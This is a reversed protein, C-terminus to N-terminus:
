PGILVCYASNRPVNGPGEFRSTANLYGELPSRSASGGLSSCTLRADFCPAYLNCDGGLVALTRSVSPLGAPSITRGGAKVSGSRNSTILFATTACCDCRKWACPLFLIAPLLVVASPKPTPLPIELTGRTPPPPGSEPVAAKAGPVTPPRMAKGGTGQFLVAFLILRFSRVRASREAIAAVADFSITFFLPCRISSPVSKGSTAVSSKSFSEFAESARRKRPARLSHSSM